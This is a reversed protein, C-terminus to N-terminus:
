RLLVMKGTSIFDNVKLRYYYVGSALNGANFQVRYEGAAKEENVLAVIERGLVDFIKLEVMGNQPISYIINTVPNFPNPYNQMLKYEAPVVGATLNVDSVADDAGPSGNLQGSIVWYEPTGPDGAGRRSKSVLSYGLGDAEAPWPSEDDYKFNLVTDGVSNILTIREGSNDLQGEYEGFPTFGYLEKFKISNSALVIFSHPAATTDGFTYEIGNNFSAGNLIVESDSVNKLEIFEYENDSTTDVDLPHYHLETVRLSSLDERVKFEAENLATWLNGNLARAKIKTTKNIKIEGTYKVADPSINGGQSTKAITLTPLILFDSSQANVNLGHIALINTGAKLATIFATIDYVTNEVPEASTTSAQSNWAPNGTFNARAVEVGNIYAVFGDDYRINMIMSNIKSLEESTVQFTTRIYCSNNQNAAGTYMKSQVDLTIYQNYDTGTDYGIGGPAGSCLLWSTTSFSTDTKWKEDIAATPVLVRKVASAPVVERSFSGDSYPVYPDTGNTTYYIDGASVSMTLRFGKEVIGGGPLNFQPPFTGSFLGKNILQNIVVSNRKPLYTQTIFNVASTWDAKTRAPTIKSDGWRASEAIIATEIQSKRTNIRAINNEKTLVGNNYFHKYVRDAFRLKYHPNGMLKQHIWQPNSYVFQSGANYPGTRDTGDMDSAGLSHEADHRFFKFGDPNVRNYIAYFNNPRENGSFASIPGDYDGVFFTCIMYDILNDVDLLREYSSNITGDPNLGQVKFYIEDSVFGTQAANWLERWKDLTGDTAEVQYLEFNDGINVKIVDYDEPEGGMYSAAFASESREQMQFLGWYTGNIYLHCFKGRTYPQGMDRQVDRSFLERLFTNQPNGYFSWSYNQACQIDINDFEDAGEDGFLPFELKSKGYDGRFFVRFAHKPNEDIRSYGGRIRIGCNIQFGESSDPNLMELSATREWERGHRRANVYIGSDPNFLNKLDTVLSLTPIATFAEQIQSKYLSNNYVNPDLGYNIQQGNVGSNMWGSGPLTNHVSLETIRNLFMYTHTVIKSALTDNMVACATIVFGPSKDRGVAILPSVTLEAPSSKTVASVSTLPNTGNLTYKIVVADTDATIRLTFPDTYFGREHSFNLKVKDGAILAFSSFFLLSLLSLIKIKLM